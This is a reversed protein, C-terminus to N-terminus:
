GTTEFAREGHIANDLGMFEAEKEVRIGGTIAKTVYIVILTGVASYLATAVM